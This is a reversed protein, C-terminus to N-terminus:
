DFSVSSPTNSSHHTPACFFCRQFSSNLTRSSASHTGSNRAISRRLASGAAKDDADVQPRRIARDPIDVRVLGRPFDACKSHRLEDGGTLDLRAVRQRRKM